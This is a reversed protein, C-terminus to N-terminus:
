FIMCLRSISVNLTNDWYTKDSLFLFDLPFRDALGNTNKNLSKIIFQQNINHLNLLSLPYVGVVFM